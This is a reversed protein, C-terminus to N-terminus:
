NKYYKNCFDQLRDGFQRVIDPTTCIIIRFFGKSFFCQGPFTLVNQDALLKKCFDIDDSIGEFQDLDIKIMMYMAASSQIPKIGKISSLREFAAVACAKLKSKLDEFFPAGVEGFIKPLAAQIISAPHLLIMSHKGLNDIVKDFYGHKNYM